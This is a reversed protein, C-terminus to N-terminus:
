SHNKLLQYKDGYEKLTQRFPHHEPKGAILKEYEDIAKDIKKYEGYIILRVLNEVPVKPDDLLQLIDSKTKAKDFYPLIFNTLNDHMLSILMNDDTNEDLDYWKDFGDILQGIRRRVACVPETPFEPLANNHFNYFALYYEPIFLGTNITFKIHHKSYYVSKQLNIIQGLDPLQLYFNNSKKKFGRPKLLEHFGEKVIRDFKQETITKM